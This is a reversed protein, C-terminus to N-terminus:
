AFPQNNGFCLWRDFTLWKGSWVSIWWVALLVWGLDNVEFPNRPINLTVPHSQNSALVAFLSKAWFIRWFCTRPKVFLGNSEFNLKEDLPSVEMWRVYKQLINQALDRNTTSAKCWYGQDYFGWDTWWTCSSLFMRNGPIAHRMDADLFLMWRDTKTVTPISTIIVLEFCFWMWHRESHLMVSWSSALIIVSIRISGYDAILNMVSLTMSLSPRVPSRCTIRSRHLYRGFIETKWMKRQLSSCRRSLVRARTWVWIFNVSLFPVRLNTSRWTRGNRTQRSIIRRKYFRTTCYCICHYYGGNQWMRKYVLPVIRAHTRVFSYVTWFFEVLSCSM